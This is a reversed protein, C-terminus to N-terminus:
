YFGTLKLNGNPFFEKFWGVRCDNCSVAERLLIDNENYSKLICPCCNEMNKWTSQHKEYISKKVM